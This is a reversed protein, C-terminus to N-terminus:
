ANFKRAMEIMAQDVDRRMGSLTAEDPPVIIPRAPIRGSGAHHIRALQGVTLGAAASPADGIGCRVGADIDQVVNGPGGLALADRMRGVDILIAIPTSSILNRRIAEFTGAGKDDVRTTRMIKQVRKDLKRRQAQTKTARRQVTTPALPKWNGGGRSYTVFRRRIFGMYRAAWKRMADRLPSQAGARLGNLVDGNYREFRARFFKFMEDPTM